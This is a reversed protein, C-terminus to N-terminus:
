GGQGKAVEWHEDIAKKSPCLLMLVKRGAVVSWFVECTFKNLKGLLEMVEIIIPAITAM